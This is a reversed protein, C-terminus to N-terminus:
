VMCWKHLASRIHPPTILANSNYVKRSKASIYKQQARQRSLLGMIETASDQVLPQTTAHIGARRAAEFAKLLTKLRDVTLLGVCKGHANYICACESTTVEPIQAPMAVKVSTDPQLSEKMLDVSRIIIDCQWTPM